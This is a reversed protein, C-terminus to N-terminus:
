ESFWDLVNSLFLERSANSFWQLPVITYVVKSDSTPQTAVVAPSDRRASNPGRVFLVTTGEEPQVIDPRVRGFVNLELADSAFGDTVPHDTEVVIDGMPGWDQCTSAVTVGFNGEIFDYDNLNCTLAYAVSGGEILLNGGQQIYEEMSDFSAREPADCCDDGVTWIVTTYEALTSEAPIGDGGTNWTDYSLGLADLSEGIEDSSTFSAQGSLKDEIVILISQEEVPVDTPEVTATPEAAPEDTPEEAEQEEEPAQTPPDTPLPAIEGGNDDGGTDAGDTGSLAGCALTASLLAALVIWIISRKALNNM